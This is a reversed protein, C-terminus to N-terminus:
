KIHKLLWVGIVGIRYLMPRLVCLFRGHEVMRGGFESKFERVGYEVDPKGAGMMDYCTCGRECAYRMGGYTAMVSPYQDKYEANRGCEFWEYVSRGELETLMSGGIIKGAYKVLVFRGVGQSYASEFVEVPLLPTKVKRKYLEELIEYWARIEQRAVEVSTHGARSLIEVEVMEGAKRIQRKRNDSLSSWVADKDRCDVHFNLHKVYAFGAQEFAEKWKSYDNFNRCEAYIAKRGIERRVAKMLEAVEGNACDCALVPGGLIIARRTFYQRVSQKDVTVYGCCVGRLKGSHEVGVAFAEFHEPLSKFFAYAEVSQFWSGTESERVLRSWEDRNIENYTLVNCSM